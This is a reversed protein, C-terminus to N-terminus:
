VPEAPATAVPPEKPCIVPCVQTQIWAYASGGFVAILGWAWPPMQNKAKKVAKKAAKKQEDPLAEIVSNLIELEKAAM